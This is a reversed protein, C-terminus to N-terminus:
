DVGDSPDTENAWSSLDKRIEARPLVNITIFDPKIVKAVREFEGTVLKLASPLHEICYQKARDPDYEVETIEKVEVGPHPHKSGTTIFQDIAAIRIEEELLKVRDTLGRYQAGRQEARIWEPTTKFEIEAEETLAKLDVAQRRLVALQSVKEEITTNM